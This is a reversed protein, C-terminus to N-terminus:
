NCSKWLAEPQQLAGKGFITDVNGIDLDRVM